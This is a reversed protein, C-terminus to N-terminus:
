QIVEGMAARLETAENESRCPHKWFDRLARAARGPTQLRAATAEIGAFAVPRQPM